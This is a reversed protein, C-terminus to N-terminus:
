KYLQQKDGPEGSDQYDLRFNQIRGWAIDKNFGNMDKWFWALAYAELKFGMFELILFIDAIIEIFDFCSLKFLAFTGGFILVDLVGYM